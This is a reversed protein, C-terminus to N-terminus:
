NITRPAMMLNRRPSSMRIEKKNASTMPHKDIPFNEDIYKRAEAESMDFNIMRYKVLFDRFVENQSGERMAKQAIEAPLGEAEAYVDFSGPQLGSRMMDMTQVTQGVTKGNAMKKDSLLLKTIDSRQKKLKELEAKANGKDYTQGIGAGALAQDQTPAKKQTGAAEEMLEINTELSDMYEGYFEYGGEIVKEEIAALNGLSDLGMSIGRRQLDADFISDVTEGRRLGDELIPKQSDKFNQRNAARAETSTVYKQRRDDAQQAQFVEFEDNGMIMKSMQLVAGLQAEQGELTRLALNNQANMLDRNYDRRDGAESEALGYLRDNYDKEMEMQAYEIANRDDAINQEFQRTREAELMDAKRQMAREQSDSDIQKDQQEGTAAIQKDQQLASAELGVQQMNAQNKQGALATRQGIKAQAIGGGVQAATQREQSQRAKAAEVIGGKKATFEPVSTGSGSGILNLPVPM